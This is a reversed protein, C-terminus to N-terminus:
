SYITYNSLQSLGLSLISSIVPLSPIKGNNWTTQHTPCDSYPHFTNMIFPIRTVKTAEVVKIDSVSEFEESFALRLTSDLSKRVRVDLRICNFEAPDYVSNGFKNLSESLDLNVGTDAVVTM